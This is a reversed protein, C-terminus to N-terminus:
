ETRLIGLDNECAIAQRRNDVSLKQYIRSAHTKVTLPSITLEQAIEKNSYRRGLLELVEHERETLPEFLRTAPTTIKRPARHFARHNEPFTSLIQNVYDGIDGQGLIQYLLRAMDPGLDVYTRIFGGHQSRRVAEELMKKAIDEQGLGNYALSKLALIEISRWTNQIDNALEHLDELLRVATIFSIRTRQVILIKVQTLRPAELLDFWEAYGEMNLVHFWRTAIENEGRLLSLRSQFSLSTTLLDTANCEMAFDVTSRVLYDSDELVGMAQRTLSLGLRSQQIILPNVHFDLHVVENFHEEAEHLQNLEYKALGLLFHALAMLTDLGTEKARKLLYVGLQILQHFDGSSRRILAITLLLRLSYAVPHARDYHRIENLERLASSAQGSMVSALGFYMMANGRVFAFSDALDDLAQQARRLASPADRHFYFEQSWFTNIESRLGAVEAMSKGNPNTSLIREARDLIPPISSLKFQHSRIWARSLLLAPRQNIVKDPLMELWQELKHIEDRNLLDHRNNEILKVAAMVDGVALSHRISDHIFGNDAFWESAVQHLTEIEDEDLKLMLRHLLLERFLVHFRYWRHEYDLPIVLLNAHVLDKLIERSRSGGHLGRDVPSEGMLADCLEANFHELIATRELFEQIEIPQRSLVENVLYEVLDRHNGRFTRAVNAYDEADRMSLAALYLGAVWGETHNELTGVIEDSLIKGTTLALFEGTEKRTFRLDDVRIELLQRTARLSSLPFPPDVRTLIVLRLRAPINRILPNLLKHINQDRFVHFDDLVLIFDESLAFIEIILEIALQDLSTRRPGSVLSLTNECADSFVTRIAGVFYSLFSKLNSDNEDLCLWASPQKVEQLWSALLTTKGYGLTASLLTLSNERVEELHSYLRPRAIVDSAFHLRLLKTIMLSSSPEIGEQRADVSTKAGTKPNAAM